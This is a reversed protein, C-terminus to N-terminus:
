RDFGGGFNSDGRRAAADTTSLPAHADEATTGRAGGDVVGVL